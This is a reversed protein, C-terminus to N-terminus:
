TVMNYSELKKVFLTYTTWLFYLFSHDNTKNVDTM